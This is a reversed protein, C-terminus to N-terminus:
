ILPPTNRIFELFFWTTFNVMASPTRQGAVWVWGVVLTIAMSAVAIVLTYGLGLLLKPLLSLAYDWQWIPTM